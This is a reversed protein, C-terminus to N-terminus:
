TRVGYTQYSCAILTINAISLRDAGESISLRDAGESKIM